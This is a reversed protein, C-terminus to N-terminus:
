HTSMTHAVEANFNSLEQYYPDAKLPQIQTRAVGIAFTGGQYDGGLWEGRTRIHLETHIDPTAIARPATPGVAVYKIPPNLPAIMMSLYEPFKSLVGTADSSQGEIENILSHMQNMRNTWLNDPTIFYPGGSSVERTFSFYDKVVAITHDEKRVSEINRPPNTPINGSMESHLPEIKQSTANIYDGYVDRFIMYEPEWNFNYDNTNIVDTWNAPAPHLAQGDANRWLNTKFTNTFVSGRLQLIMNMDEQM